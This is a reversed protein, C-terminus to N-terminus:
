DFFGLTKLSNIVNELYSDDVLPWSFGLRYLINATFLNDTDVAHLDPRDNTVLGQLRSNLKENGLMRYYDDYYEEDPVPKITIGCKNVVNILQMEDFGFRNDAHFATFKDNTGALTIVAKATMDIPSFSMPDTAHSIPSKGITTFGRLANLFANTRFNIQFEGDSHRGMLNGVRIIKGRMGNKVADLMKLEAHYKSICYKNDMDDVVFLENEHMKTQKQWSEKTHVGPISTTSIQIMRANKEVVSQILNEVGHVNIKEIIDNAAYHKVCAACNIVTDFDVNRLTECINDDTIDADIISIREEFENHFTSDFYYMLMNKVRSESSASKGKRVLCIIKGEGIDILEKLIHIGLFGVAGTLLVNGLPERKVESAYELTNYKLLEAYENIEENNEAQEKEAVPKTQSEIFEALQEPTPYTFVDQYEVKIGKSMLQMVAKSASLSTGGMEFFDDDAYYEDISLVNGFLECIQQELSKKPAKRGSKRSEKKIEPLAKKDIKGSATLPMEELQMMADPVMYHALKSKLHEKLHEMDVVHDATFFGALFDDSGNNRVIVKSQVIGYYSCICNEIEDLEVRFGRLKVQNDKRGFFEVEGDCNLRVMDGSHYAPKGRLTFFSASTKEPLNMYGRGVLEGCIILEGCAYPPLVNGFKDIVYFATNSHPGGITIKRSDEILKACCTMTCESPGYGNILNIKSSVSRIEEYLSARFAEAGSVITKINKLALRFEPVTLMNTLFSPTCSMLDVNNSLMFETLLQPNHIQNDSAICVTKGNMLLLLNDFLSMDFSISSLALGINGGDKGCYVSYTFDSTQACNALNHHEIMVGKPNGTSGSTYICYALSDAPIDINPNSDNDNKLLEEVTVARYTKDDSFLASRSNKIEETTIIIPSGSDTLCFDVRDDPYDPLLGLFAGGSKLVALEVVSILSTRELMFGVVTDKKVGNDVLWHAMRNAMSNLEGFTLQGDQAIVATKNPNMEAYEEFLRNAPVNLFERDTNNIESLRNDASQTLLNIENINEKEAFGNITCEFVDLVNNMFYESFMEQRYEAVIEIKGNKLYVNVTIPAKAVDPMVNIFEAPEGCLSNFEFNDGQYVFIIDSRIGYSSSIEAFSYIDNSMSDLLQKQTESIMESVKRNGDTHILVPITKVLMTVSSALRSDNRGNYITTFVMDEFNGFRSMAFGFASNFFANQTFNNNKCFVNIKDADIECARVVSAAGHKDKEPALPPLCDAECGKFVSDYYEKAKKFSDSKRLEEEDLATEFGTFKETDVIQGGYAKSIDSLIITQSVGDSVIHHFDMFLYNGDTTKYVTIRYLRDSLLNFPVVMSSYEPLKDCVVENIEANDNDNRRARIDGNEDSFLTTKVYPHANIANKVASVLRTTDVNESLKLLVPMNYTVTNPKSSCEIFIGQQTQTIPYDKLIEYDTQKHSASLMKELKRVTNNEKIDEIRVSVDFETGIGVNLKLAGISTLGSDYIDTDVGFDKHGIIDAIIDYIKQQVDNEPMVLNGTSRKPAPLAKKNVKQNQNLPIKDIQMTVAPVMYPPKDARIFANLSDIDIETDAVIYAALYKGGNADDFAAVTADKIGDFRRIIEEIETLEVRFGRIKVQGDARGVFQLNGDAALRVVDGTRYIKSYEPDSSFPNDIFVEATKEPRNLYGATVHPGAIWLEGVAGTTLLRCNEDVVYVKLNDVPKGIPIDRYEDDILFGSTIVSGETPGYLNYMNFGDPVNLPVLKEGAVSLHKLTKLGGLLAFQRGVQTTMVSHTIGNRNFYDRVALLDLRIEDSIIHLEAGSTIAPYTDYINADFGYSAYAAIRSANDMSYLKKVYETTVLANSHRYMVGKPMGTSGSTYIICFLDDPKPEALIAETEPISETIMIRNGTFDSDILESLEPTTILMKAGSDQIMLNLREPPYSTDMPLYAGGAKLVALSCITIYESRPVLVGVINGRELECYVLYKAIKDSYEDAESYTYKKDKYVVAINDPNKEAQERFLDIVTKSSDYEAETKNIIELNEASDDDVLNIEKLSPATIMGNVTSFLLNVLSRIFPETYDSLLYYCQVTYESGHKKVMIEIDSVSNDFILLDISVTEDDLRVDSFLESHYVFSIKTSLGYNDALENFSISENKKTTYYDDYARKIYDAPAENEDFRCIFPLTKVFMGITDALRRDSRGHFATTFVSQSSGNFKALAYGFAGLLLANESIKNKNVFEIINDSSLKDGSEVEVMGWDTYNNKKMRDPVPKSDCDVGGFKSEFYERYRREEDADNKDTQQRAVDFVTLGEDPCQGGNYVDAIQRVFISVSSGDFIIHHIDFFFADGDPSSVYEFRYLPDKELNFHRRFNESFVDISEAFSEAIKIPEDNYIMSPVGGPTGITVKFIEHKSAVIRVAEIFREKNISKPLKLRVPINYIFTDPRNLYDLYIGLQSQTLPCTSPISSSHETTKVNKTKYMNSIGRPTRGLIIDDATLASEGAENLLVLVKISDGGLDFFDDEAGVTGCDLVNEFATCLNSEFDNAPAVYKVKFKDTQPPQLSKRDLKGNINKPLEDMHVFFRPIMYDPLNKKLENRLESNSVKEESVYYAVLYNQNNSDEFAKVASDNVYSIDHLLTEIELTEVRQGNIKVMWDKRNIYVMNKQEDIFGIDGTHVSVTGDDNKVMTKATREPDKFYQVDFEGRICIEGETGDEVPQGNDDCVFMTVNGLAKGVPTNEYKKDINFVSIHSTESMGYVNCIEYNESYLLSVRESGTIVRKLCKIDTPFLKLMQPTIIGMTIQEHEYYEKMLAASRRIRDSLMHSCGGMLFVTLYETIHAIFSLPCMAAYNLNDIGDFLTKTREAARLIDAASYLIGKPTGTSGSTYLLLAPEAGDAPCLDNNADFCEIGDFFSEDIEFKAECNSKIYQIREAPYDSIVPVVACGCKLVGLYAAIYEMSRGTNVVVFDGKRCGLTFLKQAVRNSLSDLEKYSTRRQGERDVIAIRENNNDVVYKFLNIYNM